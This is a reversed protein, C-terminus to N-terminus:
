VGQEVGHGTFQVPEHVGDVHETVVHPLTPTAVLLQIVDVGEIYPPEQGDAGSLVGQLVAGHATLQVPYQVGDVQLTVFQPWVPVAVLVHTVVAAACYPPDHGEPDSLVGHLVAGQGM